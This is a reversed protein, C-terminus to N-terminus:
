RGLEKELRELEVKEEATLATNTIPPQGIIRRRSNDIIRTLQALKKKALAQSDPVFFTEGRGPLLKPFSKRFDEADFDTIRAEGFARAITRTVATVTDEYVIADPNSQTFRQISGGFGSAIRDALDQDVFLKKGLETIIRVNDLSSNINAIAVRQGATVAIGGVKKIEEWTTGAKFPAFTKPNIMKVLDTPDVPLKLGAKIKAEVTAVGQQAAVEVRRGHVKKIATELLIATGRPDDRMAKAFDAPTPFVLNLEAQVAESLEFAEIESEPQFQKEHRKSVHGNFNKVTEAVAKSQLENRKAAPVVGTEQGLLFRFERNVASNFSRDFFKQAADTDRLTSNQLFGSLDAPTATPFSKKMQQIFHSFHQDPTASKGLTKSISGGGPVSLTVTSPSGPEALSQELQQVFSTISALREQDNAQEPLPATPAPQAQETPQAFTQSAQDVPGTPVLPQTLSTDTTLPALSGGPPLVTSEQIAPATPAEPTIQTPAAEQPPGFLAAPANLEPLQGSVGGQTGGLQPLLLQMFQDRFEEAESAKRTKLGLEDERIGIGQETLDLGREQLERGRRRSKIQQGLQLGQAIGRFLSDIANLNRKRAM